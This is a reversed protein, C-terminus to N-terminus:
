LSLPLHEYPRGEEALEIETAGGLDIVVAETPHHRPRSTSGETLRYRVWLTAGLRDVGTIRIQSDVETAPLTLLMIFEKTFDPAQAPPDAPRLPRLLLAFDEEMRITRFELGSQAHRENPVYGYSELRRFPTSEGKLTDLKRLGILGARGDPLVGIEAVLQGQDRLREWEQGTGEKVFYAEIGFRLTGFRRQGGFGQLFPGSTPRRLTPPGAQTIGLEGRTLPVYVEADEPFLMRGFSPHAPKPQGHLEAWEANLRDIAENDPQSCEYRLIVYEGRLLDRPDVAM